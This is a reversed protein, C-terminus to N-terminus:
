RTLPSGDTRKQKYFPTKGSAHDTVDIVETVEPMKARIAKEIGQKLTVNAAGCGQCGGSLRLYVSTGKVDVLEVKGGHASVGPNIRAAIIREVEDRIREESPPKKEWDSPIAPKDSALTQRIAVGISKGIIQWSEDSSKAITVVNGSVLAERVGAIAFLAEFLPAGNAAEPSRCGLTRDPLIDCDLVFKCILPDNTLEATIKIPTSSM